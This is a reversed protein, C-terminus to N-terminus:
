RKQMRLNLQNMTDGIFIIFLIIGIIYTLKLWRPLLEKYKRYCFIGAVTSSMFVFDALLLINVIINNMGVSIDARNIVLELIAVIFFSIVISIGICKAINSVKSVKENKGNKRFFNFVIYVVTAIIILILMALIHTPNVETAKEQLEVIMNPEINDVM